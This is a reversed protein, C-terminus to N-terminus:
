QKFSSKTVKIIAQVEEEDTLERGTTNLEAIMNSMIILHQRMSHDHRKTYGDFRLNLSHLRTTSTGGFQLKVAEWVEKATRYKIPRIIECIHMTNGQEPERMPQTVTALMDQEELLFQIKRHSIDYNHETLKDGQNLDAVISKSATM